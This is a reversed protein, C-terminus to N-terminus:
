ASLLNWDSDEFYVEIVLDLGKHGVDHIGRRDREIAISLHIDRGPKVARDIFNRRVPGYRGVRLSHADGSPNGKVPFMIKVHAVATSRYKLNRAVPLNEHESRELGADGGIVQREAWLTVKKDGPRRRRAKIRDVLDIGM